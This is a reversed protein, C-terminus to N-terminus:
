SRLGTQTISSFTRRRCSSASITTRMSEGSIRSGNVLGLTNMNMRPYDIAYRVAMATINVAGTDMIEGFLTDYDAFVTTLYEGLGEAWYAECGDKVDIVGVIEIKVTKDAGFINGIEYVTDTALESVKLAKETTVCEYVGDSRQGKQYMRGRVVEVTEDLGTMGGLSLRAASSGDTIAISTVYLYDDSIFTKSFSAPCGLSGYSDSVIKQVKEIEQRQSATDIDMTVSHKTEYTGPYVGEETQFNEMDKVLM